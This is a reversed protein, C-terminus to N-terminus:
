FDLSVNKQSFRLDLMGCEHKGAPLRREQKYTNDTQIYKQSDQRVIKMQLDTVYCLLMTILAHM